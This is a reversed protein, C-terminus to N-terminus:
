EYDIRNTMSSLTLGQVVQEHFLEPTITCEEIIKRPIPDNLHIDELCSGITEIMQLEDLRSANMRALENIMFKQLLCHLSNLIESKVELYYDNEIKHTAYGYIHHFASKNTFDFIDNSNYSTIIITHIANTTFDSLLYNNNDLYMHYNVFPFTRINDNGNSSINWCNNLYIIELPHQERSYYIEISYEHTSYELKQSSCLHVFRENREFLLSDKFDLLRHLSSLYFFEKLSTNMSNVEEETTLQLPFEVSCYFSSYFRITANNDSVIRNEVKQNNVRETFYLYLILYEKTLNYEMQIREHQHVEKLLGRIYQQITIDNYYKTSM